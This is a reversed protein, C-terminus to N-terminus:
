HAESEKKKFKQYLLVGFTLNCLTLGLFERVLEIAPTEAKMTGTISPAGSSLWQMFDGAYFSTWVLFFTLSTLLIWKQGYLAPLAIVAAVWLYAIGWFLGDPDNYQLGAFLLFLFAIFYRM